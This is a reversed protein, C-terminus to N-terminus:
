QEAPLLHAPFPNDLERVHTHPIPATDLGGPKSAPAPLRDLRVYGSPAPTENVIESAIVGSIVAGIAATIPNVNLLLLLSRASWTTTVASSVRQAPIRDEDELGEFLHGVLGKALTKHVSGLTPGPSPDGRIVVTEEENAPGEFPPLLEDANSKLPFMVLLFVLLLSSLVFRLKDQYPSRMRPFFPVAM